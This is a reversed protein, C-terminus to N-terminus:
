YFDLMIRVKPCLISVTRHTQCFTRETGGERIVNDRM